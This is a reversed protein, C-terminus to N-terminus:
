LGPGGGGKDVAVVGRPRDGISAGGRMSPHPCGLKGWIGEGHRCHRCWTILSALVLSPAM